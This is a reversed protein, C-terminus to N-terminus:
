RVATTPIRGTRIRADLRKGILGDVAFPGAGGIVLAALCAIYLLIVEYGVPGFKAGTSTVSLLKVSSFGYPLHVKFMAVLLVATMPVSVITVFAGLLVAFGGLLETLMTLWAMLRPAPVGMGQLIAAFMDPGRSLKAFGHQMFGYGVILRLAVPSWRAMPFRTLLRLLFDSLAKM